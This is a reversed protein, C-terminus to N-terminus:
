VRLWRLRLSNGVVVLDSFAMFLVGWMPNLYGLAALPIAVINYSFAWFLNQRIVALTHKAIRMAKTFTALRDNLLVVQSSQVAAHSAEAFSVGIDALSLAPADNIGDGVMATMGKKKYNEIRAAKQEPMVRAQWDEIGLQGAVEKVKEESDGSLLVPRIHHNHLHRIHEVAQDKLSDRSELYAVLEGERLIEIKSHQPSWGIKWSVGNSEVAELGSGKVEKVTMAPPDLTYTASLFRTVARALPHSSRSEMAYLANAITIEMGPKLAQLKIEPHTLTGTKDFIVTKVKGLAELTSGGKILIGQRMAKGLGVVIATPTALGMACPCSIVLVAISRIVSQSLSVDLLLFNLLFSLLSIALILPVFVASIRDATKQIPAKAHSAAKVLEIIRGLATHEGTQTVKVIFNGALVQSSGILPDGKKRPVPSSEGTILSEDVLGEGNLIVADTPVADGENVLLLDGRKLEDVPIKVLAGSPMQMMGFEARLKSLEDISQTTRKVALHEMYNGLLLLALISAATEFFIMDPQGLFWGLLSYVLAALAGLCITVDMNPNGAWVSRFAGPLFRRFGISMAPLAFLFQLLPSQLWHFLGPFVHHFILPLTFLLSIILEQKISLKRGQKEPAQIVKYGLRDIGRIVQQLDLSPSAKFEVQGDIHNVRAEPLGSKELYREITAACGTCTMGEVKLKITGSSGDMM